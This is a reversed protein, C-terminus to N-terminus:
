PLIIIKANIFYWKRLLILIAETASCGYGNQKGATFAIPRKYTYYQKLIYCKSKAKASKENRNEYTCTNSPQVNPPLYYPTSEDNRKTEYLM